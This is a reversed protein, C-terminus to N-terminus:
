NKSAVAWGDSGKVLYLLRTSTQEGAFPTKVTMEVNCDYGKSSEQKCDIVKVKKIEVAAMVAAVMSGGQQKGAEGMAKSMGDKLAKEVDASSPAGGSCATLALLTAGALAAYLPHHSRLNM